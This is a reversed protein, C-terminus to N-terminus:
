SNVLLRVRGNSNLINSLGWTIVEKALTQPDKHEGDLVLEPNQPAEYMVNVGPVTSGENTLALKYVGKKDRRICTSLLCNLYIEAFQDIAARGWDRYIRRHGTAAIIVNVGQNTLMKALFVLSRYFWEREETTYSPEPTFVKRLDDSDLIQVKLGQQEMEEKLLGALTSKGSAPLGTLWIGFGKKDNM